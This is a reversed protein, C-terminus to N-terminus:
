YMCERKRVGGGEWEAAELGSGVVWAGVVGRASQLVRGRQPAGATSGLMSIRMGSSSQQLRWDRHPRRVRPTRREGQQLM